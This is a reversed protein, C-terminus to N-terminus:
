SRHSRSFTRDMLIHATIMVLFFFLFPYNGGFRAMNTTAAYQEAKRKQTIFEHPANRPTPVPMGIPANVTNSSFNPFNM